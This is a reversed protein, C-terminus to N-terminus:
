QIKCTSDENGIEGGLLTNVIARGIYSEAARCSLRYFGDTGEVEASGGRDTNFLHLADKMVGEISIEANYKIEPNRKLVVALITLIRIVLHRQIPHPYQSFQAEVLHYFSLENPEHLMITPLQPLLDKGFRIGGSCIRLIQHISPYFNEPVRLLCGNIQKIQPETLESEDSNNTYTNNLMDALLTRIRSPPLNDLWDKNEPEVMSKYLELARILYGMRLVLIGKFLQPKTAIMQGCYLIMEQQLVAGTVSYPFVKSYIAAKMEQPTMPGKFEHLDVGVTGVTLSNGNVIIATAYPSLSEVMRGLLSSSYRMASWYRARSAEKRLLDIRHTITDQGLMFDPGERGLLLGCLQIRGYLHGLGTLTQVIHQTPALKFETVFDHYTEKIDMTRPIDTLSQYGAYQNRNEKIPHYPAITEENKVVDIHEICASTLLNQLRGLRVKVGGYSGHKIESLLNLMVNFHPDRMNDESILICFTPRGALRWSRKIFQLESLIDSTLLAMDSSLYFDSSSFIIPYCLVTRGHVRYIKSTGLAGIPRLPRGKLGIKPCDGMSRFVKVLESPPWIQVPEVETPTQTQIGYNALMAQLRTSEAILVVQVVQEMSKTSGGQLHRMFASYRTTQRPRNYSPLYRRLPDLDWLQLHRNTLMNSIIYLSQAWLFLNDTTDAQNVLSCQRSCIPLARQACEDDGVITKPGSFKKPVVPDGNSDKVMLKDIKEQYKEVQKQDEKFMGDIIMYLFFVPWEMETGEPTTALTDGTLRRKREEIESGLGDGVYRKFGYEGELERVIRNKTRTYIATDHTAFAPYSITPLLSADTNKTNSCRPLLTEFIRLNRNHADIDAYLVSYNGRAEGFLNFGNVAELAAKAMGITCANVEPQGVNYKTGRGWVGFDPTRYAREVYYVLNQIFCVEEMTYIIQLGSTIMQVLYILYLSVIDLQLHNFEATSKVEKGTKLCFISHLSMDMNQTNKWEELKRSQRMWCALIGRMCLVSSQGLEYAKGGDDDMRRYAQYVAWICSACHISDRVSGIKTESSNTPFLGTTPSQHRLIQRKVLGYYSDLQKIKDDRTLIQIDPPDQSVLSTKASLAPQALLVM